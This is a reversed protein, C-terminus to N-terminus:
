PKFLAGSLICLFLAVAFGQQMSLDINQAILWMPPIVLLGTLIKYRQPKKKLVAPEILSTFFSTSAFAALVVSANALKISGYFTVWHLAVICGILSYIKILRPPLDILNKIGKALIIFSLSAILVRWWVLYIAKISILDGLIATLGYLLVSLHLQLYATQKKNM